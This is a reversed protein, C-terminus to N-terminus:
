PRSATRRDLREHRQRAAQASGPVPGHSLEQWSIGRGKAMSLLGAEVQDFEERAVVSGAALDAVCRVADFPVVPVGREEWRVRHEGRARRETIWLLAEHTRM